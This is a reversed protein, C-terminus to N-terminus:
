RRKTTKQALIQKLMFNDKVANTLHQVQLRLEAELHANRAQLRAVDQERLELQVLVNHLPDCVGDVMAREYIGDKAADFDALSTQAAGIDVLRVVHGAAALRARYRPNPPRGRRRKTATADPTQKSSEAM